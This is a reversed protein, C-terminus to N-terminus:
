KILLEVKKDKRLFISLLLLPNFSTNYVIFYAQMTVRHLCWLTTNKSLESLKQDYGNRDNLLSETSQLRLFYAVTTKVKLDDLFGM